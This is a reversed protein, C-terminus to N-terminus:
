REKLVFKAFDASSRSHTQDGDSMIGVGMFDPVDAKPDGNEFHKRFEADLDIEETVWTNVPGGTEQIVTEQARVLFGKKDCTVGKPGVASWVYKIAYWKLGRRWTVYIVAASDGKDKACENGGEPLAIARWKWSLKHFAKRLGEPVAYGRTMTEYPPKYESHIYPGVDPDEVVTYYNVPGSDQKVAEFKHMDFVLERGEARARAPALVAALVLPVLRRM